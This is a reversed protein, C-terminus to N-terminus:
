ITESKILQKNKCNKLIKACFSFSKELKGNEELLSIQETLFGIIENINNM